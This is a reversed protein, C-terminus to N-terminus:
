AAYLLAAESIVRSDDRDSRSVPSSGAIDQKSPLREEVSSSGRAQRRQYTRVRHCNCCVIDCKRVEVMLRETTLRGAMLPVNRVKDAPQRHDFEMVYWPFCVGCDTCPAARLERLLAIQTTWLRRFKTRGRMQEATGKIELAHFCPARMSGDLFARYTRSRHCNACVIDCKAIEHLLVARSKLLARGTTLPFLKM